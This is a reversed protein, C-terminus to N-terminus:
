NSVLRIEATIEIKSNCLKCSWSKKAALVTFLHEKCACVGVVRHLTRKAKQVPYNHYTNPVGGLELMIMRFEPGHWQKAHPFRDATFIHALEHLVTNSFDANHMLKTNFAVERTEPMAKGAITNHTFFGVTVTPDFSNVLTIIEQKNM